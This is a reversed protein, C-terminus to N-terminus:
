WGLAGFAALAFVKCYMILTIGVFVSWKIKLPNASTDPLMICCLWTSGLCCAYADQSQLSRLKRRKAFSLISLVRNNLMARTQSSM